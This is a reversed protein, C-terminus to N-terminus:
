NVVYIIENRFNNQQYSVHKEIYYLQLILPHPNHTNNLFIAYKHKTPNENPRYTAIDMYRHTQTYTGAWLLESISHFLSKSWLYYEKFQESWYPGSIYISSSFVTKVRLSRLYRVGSVLFSVPSLKKTFRNIQKVINHSKGGSLEGKNAGMQPCFGYFQASIVNVYSWFSYNYFLQRALRGQSRKMHRAYQLYSINPM